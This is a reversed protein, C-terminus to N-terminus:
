IDQPNGRRHIAEEHGKYTFTFNSLWTQSKPIGQDAAEWAGGDMPNEMCSYQLPNGCTEKNKTYLTQSDTGM